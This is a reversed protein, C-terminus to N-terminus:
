AGHKGEKSRHGIGTIKVRTKEPRFGWKKGQNHSAKYKYSTGKPGKVNGIVEGSVQFNPISPKGVQTNSGDTSFLVDGFEVTSGQDAKLREVDIIDGVAVRYQKGGTKIIAYM